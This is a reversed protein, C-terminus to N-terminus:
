EISTKRCTLSIVHVFVKASHKETEGAGHYGSCASLRMEHLAHNSLLASVPFVPFRAVKNLCIPSVQLSEDPNMM